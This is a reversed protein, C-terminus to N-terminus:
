GRRYASPSMGVHEKFYRGMFSQNPFHLEETIEKISKNSNKLMIRMELTVCSDIWETPTRKSVQKVAESLYKPTICLQEAYWGVRRETKFNKEVLIIFKTFIIDARSQRRHEPQERFITNSLDYFMALLLTSVLRKLFHNDSEAIKSKILNFYSIFTDAEKQTLRVVPKEHTFLILTMLDNKDRIIESFFQQSIMMCRGEIDSSLRINDIIHRTPVLFVDNPRIVQRETDMTYEAEGHTCLAVMIFNMRRAEKPFSSESIQDFVILDDEIFQSGEWQKARDFSTDLIAETAKM